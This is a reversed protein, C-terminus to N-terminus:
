RGIRSTGSCAGSSRYKNNIDRQGDSARVWHSPRRRIGVGVHRHHPRLCYGRPLPRDVEASTRDSPEFSGRADSRPPIVSSKYLAARSIGAGAAIRPTTAGHVEYKAVLKLTVDAIHEQREAKATRIRKHAPGGCDGAASPRSSDARSGDSNM